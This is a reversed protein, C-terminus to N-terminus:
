MLEAVVFTSGGIFILDKLDASNRAALLASKVSDYCAGTLGAATAQRMLESADLGRPINPKCFYYTADKPLLDLIPPLYKDNVVGFVFHLHAHLTTSIQHMVERLGGENHGTDCITLPAHDLIQWRGSLGTNKVVNKIGTRITPKSIEIGMQNLKICAGLVTVTNKLQYIGTLPTRLRNLFLRSDRYIDMERMNTKDEPLISNRVSFDQDAFLIESNVSLAKERFLDKTEYQTEGIVVPIGPKIIGAKEVAIKEVTDGLFQMHDFSVNTIVSLLPTIINTSDLRGGLGVEVLAIDVKQERFYSFAMGVTLEFFSPNIKEYEQQYDGIFRTVYSREIMKGNVRIRERFDKLHPSTYLGTRFGATQLISALMHSVSGKGNTGAVHISKFSHQPNNLLNCLAVTNDLNAKYASAGVRHFMPLKKFLYKITQQYNM